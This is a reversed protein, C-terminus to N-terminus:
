LELFFHIRRLQWGFLGFRSFYAVVMALQYQPSVPHDPPGPLPGMHPLLLFRSKPYSM